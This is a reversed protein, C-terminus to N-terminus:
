PPPASPTLTRVSLSLASSASAMAMHPTWERASIERSMIKQAGFFAGKSLPEARLATPITNQSAFHIFYDLNQLSPNVEYIEAKGFYLGGDDSEAIGGGKWLLSKPRVSGQRQRVIQGEGSLPLSKKNEQLM